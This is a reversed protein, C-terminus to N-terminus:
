CQKNINCLIIAHKKENDMENVKFGHNLVNSIISVNGGASAFHILSRGKEDVKHM